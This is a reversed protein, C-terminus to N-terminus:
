NTTTSLKCFSNNCFKQMHNELNMTFLSSNLNRIQLLSLYLIWELVATGSLASSYRGPMASM